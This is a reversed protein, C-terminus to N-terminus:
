RGVSHEKYELPTNKLIKYQIREVEGDGKMISIM